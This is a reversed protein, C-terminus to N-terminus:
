DSKTPCLFAWKGYPLHALKTILIRDTHDGYITLPVM